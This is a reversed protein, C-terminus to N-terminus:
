ECQLKVPLPPDLQDLVDLEDTALRILTSRMRKPGEAEEVDALWDLVVRAGLWIVSSIAPETDCPEHFVAQLVRERREAREGSGTMRQWLEDTSRVKFIRHLLYDLQELSEPESLEWRRRVQEARAPWNEESEFPRIPPEDMSRIIICTSALGSM